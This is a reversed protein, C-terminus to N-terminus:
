ARRSSTVECKKKNKIKKSFFFIIVTQIEKRKRKKKKQCISASSASGRAQSIRAPRCNVGSTLKCEVCVSECLAYVCVCVCM